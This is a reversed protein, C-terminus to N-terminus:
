APKVEGSKLRLWELEGASLPRVTRGTAGEFGSKRKAAEVAEVVNKIAVEFYATQFTEGIDKPSRTIEVVWGAASAEDTM